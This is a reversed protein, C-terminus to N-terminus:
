GDVVLIEQEQGLCGVLLGKGDRGLGLDKVVV